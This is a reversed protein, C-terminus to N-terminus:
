SRVSERLRRIAAAVGEKSGFVSAGAVLLNAGAKVVRPATAVGIGGDVEIDRELGREVMMQRVRAIKQLTEAIFEQGGFGPNVTMVLVLDVDGLIDELMAAPTSPNIAVGAKKGLHHIQQIARHLHPTAEQHVIIVDAGASAFEAVYREPEVIMLHAEIPLRMSRRVAEVVLPGFTINPVFRGDMVDVQIRDAGSSEAEQVQEGLRTLDASLISPVIEIKPMSVLGTIDVFSV